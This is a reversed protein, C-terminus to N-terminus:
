EKYNCKQYQYKKRYKTGTKYIKMCVKVSVIAKLLTLFYVKKGDEVTQADPDDFIAKPVEKFKRLLWKDEVAGHAVREGAHWSAADIGAADRTWFVLLNGARARIAVGVGDATSSYAADIPPTHVTPARSILAPRACRDSTAYLRALHCIRAVGRRTCRAQPSLGRRAVCVSLCVSVCACLCVCLCVSVCALIGM